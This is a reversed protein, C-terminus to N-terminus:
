EDELDHLAAERLEDITEHDYCQFGRDELHAVLEDRSMARITDGYTKSM